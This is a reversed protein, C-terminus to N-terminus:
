TRGVLEFAGLGTYRDGRCGPVGGGRLSRAGGDGVLKAEARRVERDRLCFCFFAMTYSFTMMM